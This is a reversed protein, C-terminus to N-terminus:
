QKMWNEYSICESYSAYGTSTDGLQGTTTHLVYSSGNKFYKAVITGQSPDAADVPSQLIKSLQERNSAISISGGTADVTITGAAIIIGNFNDKVTVNGSCLILRLNRSAETSDYVYNAGSGGGIVVAGVTTDGYATSYYTPAAPMASVAVTEVLNYYPTRSQEGTSMDIDSYDMSLKTTLAKYNKQYEAEADHAEATLAHSANSYLDIKGSNATDSYVMNGHMMLEDFSNPLIIESVYNKMYGELTDKHAAYYERFYRSSNEADFNVYFYVMTSVVGDVTVQKFVTKYGETNPTRYDDLTKNLGSVKKTFSVLEFGPVTSSDVLMESYKDATMPNQGYETVGDVVGICETPVLYAIQNSKVEISEGLNVNENVGGLPASYYSEQEHVYISRATHRRVGDSCDYTIYYNVKDGQYLGSITLKAVDGSLAMAAEIEAANNLSYRVSAGTISYEIGSALQINAEAKDDAQNTGSKAIKHMGYTPATKTNTSEDSPNGTSGSNMDVFPSFELWDFRFRAAETNDPKQNADYSLYYVYNAWWQNGTNVEAVYVYQGLGNGDADCLELGYYGGHNTTVLRFKQANAEDQEMYIREDRVGAYKQDVRSYLVFTGAQGTSVLAIRQRSTTGTAVTDSNAQMPSSMQIYKTRNGLTNQISYIGDVIRPNGLDGDVTGKPGGVNGTGLRLKHKYTSSTVEKSVSGEEIIYVFYYEITSDQTVGAITGVVARTDAKTSMTLSKQAAGDVKYYMTAVHDDMATWKKSGLTFEVETQGNYNYTVLIDEDGLTIHPRGLHKLTFLQETTTVKDRNASLVGSTLDVTVYKDNLVSKLAYRSTGDNMVYITFKENVGRQSATAKIQYDADQVSLYKGTNKVDLISVTNDSNRIIQFNEKDSISAEAVKAAVAGESGTWYANKGVSRIAYVAETLTVNTDLQEHLSPDRQIEVSGVLSSNFTEAGTAVQASGSLLLRDLGSMDLSTNTGNILIASSEGGLTLTGDDALTTGNGYGYYEGSLAVTSTGNADSKGGLVLDGALYTRGSSTFTGKNVDVEKAWLDTGSSVNLVAQQPVEINGRSILKFSNNVDWKAAVNLVLGGDGAYVNNGVTVNNSGTGIIQTDALMTYEFLEPMDSPQLLNLNPAKLRIDTKIISQFGEADTYTIEVGKLVLSDGGAVYELTWADNTSKIVTTTTDAVDATLYSRLKAETYHNVPGGNELSTKLTTLLKENFKSRRVSEQSTTNYTQMVETYAEEAVASMENQLGLNIQELVGEASYFNKKAKRDVSKMQVNLTAVSYLVSVLISVLAIVVIVIIMASGRNDKGKRM